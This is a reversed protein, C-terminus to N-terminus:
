PISVCSVFYKYTPAEDMVGGEYLSVTYYKSGDPTSTASWYKRTSWGHLAILSLGGSYIKLLEDKSPLRWSKGKFKTNRCMDVAKAHTFFQYRPEAVARQKSRPHLWELDGFVMTEAKAVTVMYDDEQTEYNITAQGAGVITVEGTSTNVTAVSTNNSSYTVLPRRYM